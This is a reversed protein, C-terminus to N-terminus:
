VPHFFFDVQPLSCGLQSVVWRFVSKELMYDESSGVAGGLYGLLLIWYWGRLGVCNAFWIGRRLLVQGVLTQLAHFTRPVFGVCGPFSTVLGALCGLWPDTRLFPPIVPVPWLFGFRFGVCGVSLWMLGVMSVICLGGFRLRGLDLGQCWPGFFDCFPVPGVNVDSLRKWRLYPFAIVLQQGRMWLLGSQMGYNLSCGFLPLGTCCILASDMGALFQGVPLYILGFPLGVAALFFFRAFLLGM